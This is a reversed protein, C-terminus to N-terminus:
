VIEKVEATTLERPAVHQKRGLPTHVTGDIAIASPGVTEKGGIHDPHV